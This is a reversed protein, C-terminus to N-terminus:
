EAPVPSRDLVHGPNEVLFRRRLRLYESPTRGTFAFFENNFHPQDYFGARHAAQGWDVPGRPDIELVVRAFRYVRALVKPPVGVQEKFRGALYSASVGASESLAGISVAGHADALHTSVDRVLAVGKGTTLRERLLAELTALMDHPDGAAHLREGLHDAFRGWVASTPVVQDRLEHLPTRLFPFAGWPKFHVGVFRTFRPSEIVMHTTPMGVFFGETPRAPPGPVGPSHVHFPGDLPVFLLASPMPPVLLRPYPAAGEVYYLDDILRDLPARPVRSLYRM